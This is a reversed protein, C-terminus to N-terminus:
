LTPIVTKSYADALHEKGNGDKVTFYDPSICHGSM